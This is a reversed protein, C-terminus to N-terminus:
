IDSVKRRLLIIFILATKTHWCWGALVIIQKRPSSELDLHALILTLTLLLRFIKDLISIAFTLILIRASTSFGIFQTYAARCLGTMWFHSARSSREQSESSWDQCYLAGRSTKSHPSDALSQSWPGAELPYCECCVTDARSESQAQCCQHKSEM